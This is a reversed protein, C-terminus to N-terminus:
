PEIMKPLKLGSSSNNEYCRKLSEVTIGVADYLTFVKSDIVCKVLLVEEILKIRDQECFENKGNGSIHQLVFADIFPRYVEIVDDSLNFPNEGSMHRIGIALEFGHAVLHKRIVGRMMAYGYNLSANIKDPYRGRIFDKGFCLPFYRRAAVAERARTDGETVEKIWSEFEVFTYSPVEPKFFLLIDKQNEIKQRIIKQWLRGKTKKSLGIQLKLVSMKRVYGFDNAVLATPQHKYDCILVMVNAELLKSIALSQITAYQNEIILVSIEDPSLFETVGTKANKLRIMEEKYTVQHATKIFIIDKM